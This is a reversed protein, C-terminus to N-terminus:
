WNGNLLYGNFLTRHCKVVASNFFHLLWKKCLCTVTWTTKLTYLNQKWRSVFVLHSIKFVTFTPKLVYKKMLITPSHPSNQMVNWLKAFSHFWKNYKKQEPLIRLCNSDWPMWKLRTSITFRCMLDELTEMLPQLSSRCRKWPHHSFGSGHERNSMVTLSAGSFYKSGNEIGGFLVLQCHKWLCKQSGTSM